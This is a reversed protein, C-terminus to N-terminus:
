IVGGENYRGRCKTRNDARGCTANTNMIINGLQM